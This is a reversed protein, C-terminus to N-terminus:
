AQRRGQFMTGYMNCAYFKDPIGDKFLRPEIRMLDEAFPNLRPGDQLVNANQRRLLATDQVAEGENFSTFFCPVNMDLIPQLSTTWSETYEEYMGTNFAVVLDPKENIGSEVYKEFYEHYTSGFMGVHRERHNLTCTPCCEVPATEYENVELAQCANPGVFNITLRKITPLMHLIEEWIHTPPSEYSDAGVVDIRLNGGKNLFTSIGFQYMAYLCTVPQSQSRTITTFDDAVVDPLPVGARAYRRHDESRLAFYDDWSGPFSELATNLTDEPAMFPYEKMKAVHQFHCYEIHNARQFLQCIEPTHLEEYQGWHERSCCWGFHCKSCKVWNIEDEDARRFDDKYCIACIRSHRVFERFRENNLKKLQKKTPLEKSPPLSNILEPLTRDLFISARAIRHPNPASPLSVSDYREWFLQLAKCEYKHDKKWDEIQCARSCYHAIKCEICKFLRIRGDDSSTNDSSGAINGTPFKCCNLCCAGSFAASIPLTVIELAM